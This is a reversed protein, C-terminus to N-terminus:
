IESITISKGALQQKAKSGGGGGCIQGTIVQVAITVIKNIIIAQLDAILAGNLPFYDFKNNISENWSVDIGRM